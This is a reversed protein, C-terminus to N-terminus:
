KGDGPGEYPPAKPQLGAESRFKSLFRDPEYRLLYERNLETAHKFPGPLLTVESLEFAPKNGESTESTCAPIVVCVLLVLNTRFSSNM